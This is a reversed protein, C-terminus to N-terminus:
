EDASEDFLQSQEPIAIGTAQCHRRILLEVLNAPGTARAPQAALIDHGPESLYQIHYRIAM